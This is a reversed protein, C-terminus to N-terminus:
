RAGALLQRAATELTQPTVTGTLLWATGPDGDPDSGIAIEPTLVLSLPGIQLAQGVASTTGGPTAALQRRLSRATRGFLPTAAFETVGRGYVGITGNAALLPNRAIGALSAPARARGLRDIFAVLDPDDSITQHSGAPPGFPIASTPPPRPSFDLFQTSLVSHGSARVDVRLALGTHAQAWVDVEDITSIPDAPRMRMGPVSQGAIRASPLRTVEAPTAESLLRRALTAPVLDPGEPLRVARPTSELVLTAHQSQYDWTWNAAGVHHIDSEGTATITDVRWQTPDRWWVRMQSDGGFLDAISNLQSTVPLDLGGASEAYGSYPNTASRQIAVLLAPASIDSHAAPRAAIVAPLAILAALSSGVVAWRWIRSM